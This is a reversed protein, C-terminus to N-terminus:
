ALLALTARVEDGPMTDDIRAIKGRAFRCVSTGTLDVHNAGLVYRVRWRLTVIGRQARPRATLKPIRRDFRRDVDDLMTRFVGIIADKGRTEGHFPPVGSHMAYVADDAFCRRVRRWDDTVFAREFRRAYRMFRLLEFVPLDGKRVGSIDRRATAYIRDTISV